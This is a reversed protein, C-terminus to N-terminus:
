VYDCRKTYFFAIGICRTDLERHEAMVSAVHARHHQIAITASGALGLAFTTSLYEPHADHVVLARSADIEYMATLDHVTERFAVLAGFDELDGIHQSVFAQGGTVLTITNKLDAGLAVHFSISSGFFLSLTPRM